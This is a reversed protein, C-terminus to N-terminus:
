ITSASYAEDRGEEADEDELLDFALAVVDDEQRRARHEDGGDRADSQRLVSRAALLPSRRDVEETKKTLSPASVLPRTSHCRRTVRAVEDNNRSRCCWSCHVLPNVKELSTLSM